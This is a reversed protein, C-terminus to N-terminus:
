EIGAVTRIVAYLNRVFALSVWLSDSVTADAFCIIRLTSIDCIPLGAEKILTFSCEHIHNSVQNYLGRCGHSLTM